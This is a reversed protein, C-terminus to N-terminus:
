RKMTNLFIEANSQLSLIQKLLLAAGQGRRLNTIDNHEDNQGSIRKLEVELWKRVAKFDDNHSLRALSRFVEENPHNIM